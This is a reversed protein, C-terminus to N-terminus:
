EVKDHLTTTLLRLYERDLDAPPVPRASQPPLDATLAARVVELLYKPEAPNTLVSAVGIAAALRRVEEALYTATYFMIRTGALEPNARVRWAFEYGDMGPMLMDTIVLDPRESITLALGEAGDHAELMAHGQYGLLALLLDGDAPQDEVILISAM